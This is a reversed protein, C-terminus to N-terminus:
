NVRTIKAVYMPGFNDIISPIVLQGYKPKGQGEAFKMFKKLPSFTKSLDSVFFDVSTEEWFYKLAAKVIGDNQIPSMTCTSYVVSGGPRVCSLASRHTFLCFTDVILLSIAEIM